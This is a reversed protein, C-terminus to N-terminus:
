RNIVPWSFSGPTNGVAVSKVWLVDTGDLFVQGNVISTEENGWVKVILMPFVEEAYVMNGIYAQAGVPWLNKTIRAAISSPDTRRRNISIADSTTLKYHVFHGITPIM